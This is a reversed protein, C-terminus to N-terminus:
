SSRLLTHAYSVPLQVSRRRIEKEGTQIFISRGPKSNVELIWVSGQRDIGIDLGLELLPGHNEEIIKPVLTSIKKIQNTIESIADAPYNQKLFPHFTTAHGGGHLNSTITDSSGIRVALGTTDWERKENKQVLIRIDFPENDITSLELFPQMIYRTEGVFAKLWRRLTQESKITYLFPKNNNSLRGRLKYKEEHREIAVIGRGHSGGNPKLLISDEEDLFDLADEVHLYRLTTPLFPWIEKYSKLIDYTKLKGGLARGLFQIHPDKEILMVAPKYEVYHNQNPYYCRDYILKPLSFISKRWKKKTDVSWAPVTRKEWNIEKPSFVIVDLNLKIGELTLQYFFSSESFPPTSDQSNYCVIVGLTYKNLKNM